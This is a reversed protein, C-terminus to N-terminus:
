LFVPVIFPLIFIAIYVVSFQWEGEHVPVLPLSCVIKGRMKLYNGQFQDVILSKKFSPTIFM